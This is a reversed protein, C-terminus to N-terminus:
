KKIFKESAWNVGDFVMITYIDSPLNSINVQKGKDGSSKGYTWKQKLNGMKDILQLELIDKQTNLDSKDIMMVNVIDLVPNPSLHV